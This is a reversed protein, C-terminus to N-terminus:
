RYLLLRKLEQDRTRDGGPECDTNNLGITKKYEDKLKFICALKATGFHIDAVTPREEFLLAFLGEIVKSDDQRMLTEGIHELYYLVKNIVRQVDIKEEFKKDQLEKLDHEELLLKNMKQELQKIVAPITLMDIKDALNKQKIANVKLRDVVSETDQILRQRKVEWFKLLRRRIDDAFQEEFEINALYEYIKTELKDANIGYYKHKWAHHYTRTHGGSGNKPASGALAKDCGKIPCGLVNKFPFLSNHPDKRQRLPDKGRELIKAEEGEIILVYKDKNALNWLELTVLGDFKQTKIYKGDLWKHRMFGVYVPNQIIRYLGKEDLKKGGKHGIVKAKDFKDYVNETRTKFGMKNVEDIIFTDDRGEAKLEFIRIIWKSEVENATLVVRKGQDTQVRINKLGLAPEMVVYGSRVYRIEAGIMRTLINRVEDKDQEGKLFLMSDTPNFKSWSFEVDLHELTNITRHNFMGYVDYLKVGEALYMEKINLLMSGGGRTTRDTSKIFAYEIKKDMQKIQQLIKYLPQISLEVTASETLPFNKVIKIKVNDQAEVRQIALPLQKEQDNHSDGMIALKQASLREITIANATKM